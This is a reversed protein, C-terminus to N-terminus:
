VPIASRTITVPGKDKQYSKWLNQRVLDSEEREEQDQGRNM